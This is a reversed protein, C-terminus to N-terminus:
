YGRKALPKAVYLLYQDDRYVGAYDADLFEKTDAAFAANDFLLQEPKYQKLIKLIGKHTIQGSWFRKAPLVALEPIVLLKAHFPFITSQTYVWRTHSAYVKMKAILASDEVRPLSRIEEIESVFRAGGIVAITSWVICGALLSGAAKFPPRLFRALDEKWVIQFLGAVAYGTLWAIPVAFHLYYYDWWPRHVSHIATVTLLLVVPFALRRWDRRLLMLILASGAGILGEKHELFLRPSFALAQAETTRRTQESFHSDLLERYSSGLIAGLVFFGVAIAAGWVLLNLLIAKAKSKYRADSSSLAIEVAIAPALVCATPKIQLAAALLLGSVVLRSRGPRKARWYIPWLAFLATGIAPVELMASVSLQLVQPAILLCATAVCAALVGCSRRVLSFCGTLLLAGFCVALIRAVGITPGFCRFLIGLLETHLPLQDNWVREYLVYGKAWLAAKTVEFYEDPGIQIASRLHLAPVALCVLVIPLLIAALRRWSLRRSHSQSGPDRACSTGRERGPATMGPKSSLEASM